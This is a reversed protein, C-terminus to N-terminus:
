GSSAKSGAPPGARLYAIAAIVTVAVVFAAAAALVTNFAVRPGSPEDPLDAREIIELIVQEPATGDAPTTSREVLIDALLNAIQQATAPREDTAAITIFPTSADTTIRLRAELAVQDNPLDLIRIVDSLVPRTRALSGYAQAIRPSTLVDGTNDLGLGATVVLQSEATYIKTGASSILYTSLSVVAVIGLVAGIAILVAPLRSSRSM